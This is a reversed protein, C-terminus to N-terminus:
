VEFSLEKFLDKAAELGLARDVVELRVVRRLGEVAERISSCFESAFTTLDGDPGLDAMARYEPGAARPYVCVRIPLGGFVGLEDKTLIHPRDQAEDSYQIDTLKNMMKMDDSGRNTVPSGM